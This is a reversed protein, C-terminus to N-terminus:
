TKKMKDWLERLVKASWISILPVGMILFMLLFLPNLTYIPKEKHAGDFNIITNKESWNRAKVTFSTHEGYDMDVQINSIENLETREYTDLKEQYGSVDMNDFKDSHSRGKITVESIPRPWSSNSIILYSSGWDTHKEKNAQIPLFGFMGNYTLTYKVKSKMMWDIIVEIEEGAPVSLNFLEVPHDNGYKGFPVHTRWRDNSYYDENLEISWSEVRKDDTYITCDKPEHSPDFFLSIEETSDSPNTLSYIGLGNIHDEYFDLFVTVEELYVAESSSNVKKCSNFNAHHSTYSINGYATPALSILLFLSVVGFVLVRSWESGSRNMDDM